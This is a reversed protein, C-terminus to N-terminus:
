LTAHLMFNFAYQTSATLTVGTKARLVFTSPTSSSQEIYVSVGAAADNAPNFVPVLSGLATAGTTVTVITAGATPTTGTTFVMRIGVGSGTLTNMTPSTGAGTGFTHTPSTANGNLSSARFGGNVDLVTVPADRNIGVRVAEDRTLVMGRNNLSSPTADPSIKFVDSVSNDVGASWSTGAVPTYRTHPDGGSTGGTRIELYAHASGTNSTNEILTNVSGALGAYWRALTGVSAHSVEHRYAGAPTVGFGVEGSTLITVVDGSGLASSPNIKLADSASNDVGMAWTSGSPVIWSLTPDGATTGAVEIRMQSNGLSSNAFRGFLTGTAGSLFRYMEVDTTIATAAVHLPVAPTTNVGFFGSAPVVQLLTSSTIASSASFYAVQNATGSGTIGTFTFYEHATAGANVRVLQLGTGYGTFSAATTLNISGFGLTTGSRRLIHGDTGATIDAVAGTSNASRGIVSLGASNRLKADTVVSNDITWTAGSGSVTIDGKDGDSVGVVTSAITFNPYTGTVSIGTGNSLTVTLDPSTNAITPNGAEGNANTVSIGSGATLTRLAWAEESTRVAIGNGTLAELAALDNALAFTFTGSETIPSGSITFGAAPATAAVSTVTGNTRASYIPVLISGSPLTVSSTGSVAVTTAGATTDATVTLKAREGNANNIVAFVDGVSYERLLLATSVSVSTVAGVSISASTTNNSVPELYAQAKQYDLASMSGPDSANAPLIGITFIGNIVELTVPETAGVLGNLTSILSSSAYPSGISTAYGCTNELIDWDLKSADTMAAWQGCGFRYTLGSVSNEALVSM